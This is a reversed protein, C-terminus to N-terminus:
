FLIKKGIIIPALWGLRKWQSKEQRTPLRTTTEAYYKEFYDDSDTPKSEKNIEETEWFRSLDNLCIIIKKPFHVTKVRWTILIQGSNMSSGTEKDGKTM